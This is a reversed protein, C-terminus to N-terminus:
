GGYKKPIPLNRLPYVRGGDRRAEDAGISYMQLEEADSEAFELQAPTYNAFYEADTDGPRLTLLAILSRVTAVSDIAHMPSSGFDEGCFITKNSPDFLRYGLISKGRGDPRHTDWLLIRYGTNGLAVYRLIDKFM